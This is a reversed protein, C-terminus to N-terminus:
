GAREVLQTWILGPRHPLRRFPAAASSFCNRLHAARGLCNIRESRIRVKRYHEVIQGNSGIVVQTNYVRESGPTEGQDEESGPEPLDHIGVFIM